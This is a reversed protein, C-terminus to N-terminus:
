ELKNRRVFLRGSVVIALIIALSVVRSMVLYTGTPLTLALIIHVVADVFFVFGFVATFITFKRHNALNSLREPDGYKFARLLTILLPRRMVVSILFILGITGTLVPRYLKLPLSSGSSLASVAFAGAFGLVGLVGIWDVRRRWAWIIMTRVAPVAGSIALATADNAFLRRSFTYLMLPILGNVALSLGLKRRAERLRQNSEETLPM